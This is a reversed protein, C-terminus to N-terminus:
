RPNHDLVGRSPVEFRNALAGFNCQGFRCGRRRTAFNTLQLLPNGLKLVDL